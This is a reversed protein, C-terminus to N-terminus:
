VTKISCLMRYQEEESFMKKHRRLSQPSLGGNSTSKPSNSSASSVSSADSSDGSGHRKVVNPDSAPSMCTFLYYSLSMQKTINKDRVKYKNEVLSM